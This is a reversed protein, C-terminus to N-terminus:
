HFAIRSFRASARLLIPAGSSARHPARGKRYRAAGRNKLRQLQLQRRGIPADAAVARPRKEVPMSEGTLSAETVLFDTATLVLGDAPVLNGASLQIIDGPVIHTAPLSIIKGDRMVKATQALRQRLELLATSAKYEQYFGLLASTVVIALIIGADTWQRLIFSLAAGFILVLVLPSEFQRGLLRIPGAGKGDGVTNAGHSRLRGAAEESSLGERRSKLRAILSTADEAWYTMQTDPAMESVKRNNLALCYISKGFYAPM